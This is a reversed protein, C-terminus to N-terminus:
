RIIAQKVSNALICRFKELEEDSHFRQEAEFFEPSLVTNTGPRQLAHFDAGKVLEAMTKISSVDTFPMLCTTRFEHSLGSSLIINATERIASSIDEDTIGPVYNEPATKLDMAIYDVLGRDIINKVVEPHSGNTDIKLYLGLSRVRVCFDSLDPQLTPEGGSIVVADLFNRRKFLFGYIEEQDLKPSNGGPSSLGPNHCYPCHFNCGATFVVSSILPPYDILSYKQM